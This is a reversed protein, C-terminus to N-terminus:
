LLSCVKRKVTLCLVSLIYTMELFNVYFSPFTEGSPTNCQAVGRDVELACCM